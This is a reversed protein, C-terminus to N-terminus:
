HMHQILQLDSSLDQSPFIFGNMQENLLVKQASVIAEPLIGYQLSIVTFLVSLFELKRLSVNENWKRWKRKMEKERKREREKRREVVKRGRERGKARKRKWNKEKRSVERGFLSNM